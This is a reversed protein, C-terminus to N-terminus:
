LIRQFRRDEPAVLVQRYMKTIDASVMCRHIRFRILIVFLDCQVTPGTMQLDTLSVGTSSKASGDFVVRLKTTTSSHKFIVHHPLYYEPEGDAAPVFICSM